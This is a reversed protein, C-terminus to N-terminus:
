EYSEFDLVYLGITSDSKNAIIIPKDYYKSIIENYLVDDAYINTKGFPRFFDGPSFDSARKNLKSIDNKHLLDLTLESCFYSDKSEPLMCIKRLAKPIFFKLFQSIHHEYPPYKCDPSYITEDMIHKVEQEIHENMKKPVLIMSIDSVERYNNILQIISKISYKDKEPYFDLIPHTMVGQMPLSEVHFTARSIDTMHRHTDHQIICSVHSFPSHTVYQILKDIITNNYHLCIIGNLTDLKINNIKTFIMKKNCRKTLENDLIVMDEQYSKLVHLLDTVKSVRLPSSEYM